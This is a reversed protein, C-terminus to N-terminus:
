AASQSQPTDGYYIHRATCIFLFVAFSLSCMSFPSLQFDLSKLLSRFTQYKLYLTSFTISESAVLSIASDYIRVIMDGSPNGAPSVVTIDVALLDGTATPFIRQADNLTNPTVGDEILESSDFISQDLDVIGHASAQPM